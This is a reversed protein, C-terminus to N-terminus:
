NKEDIIEKRVNMLELDISPPSSRIFNVLKANKTEILLKKLDINQTFKAKLAEYREIKSRQSPGIEFFDPDPKVNDPRIKKKEYKGKIAVAKAKKPDLSLESNADISFKEYFDPHGKKYQSGYYYHEVTAWKKGDLMFSAKWSDDLKRRWDTMVKDNNLVNFELIRDEPIEEGSGKGAKPKPDSKDYFRFVTRSDFLEYNPDEEEPQGVDSSLGLNMKLERFDKLLYYAGSNKEMCKNVILMKIDYPLETFKLLGKDKYTILKYHEGTHSVMIYYEPARNTDDKSQGCLMVSDLDGSYYSEESLIIIKINLAEEMTTIAWADAWFESTKIIRKFDEYSTVNRMFEFEELLQEAEIKELEKNKYESLNKKANDLIQLGENKNDTTDHQKKLIRGTKKLDKMDKDITQLEGNLSNYLTKYEMYRDDTAKESLLARLKKITTIKGELEFADRISAFFCDGGGDNDTIGYNNNKLFKNIWESNVKEEYNKKIDKSDKEREEKLTTKKKMELNEIFIGDKLEDDEKKETRKENLNKISTVDDEDDEDDEEEQEEEEEIKKNAKILNDIDTSEIDIKDKNLLKIYESTVYSFILINGRNLDMDGEDDLAGVIRNSEIEFIGIREKVKNNIIIYIPFNIINSEMNTYKEKGLVVEVDLGNIEVYYASADHGKDEPDIIKTENYIISDVIESKVM